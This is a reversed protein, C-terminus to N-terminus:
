ERRQLPYDESTFGNRHLKHAIYNINSWWFSLLTLSSRFLSLLTFNLTFSKRILAELRARLSTGSHLLWQNPFDILFYSYFFRNSMFKIVFDERLYWLASIQTATLVSLPSIVGITKAALWFPRWSMEELTFSNASFARFFARWGWSNM